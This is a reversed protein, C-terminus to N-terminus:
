ETWWIDEAECVKFWTVPNDWIEENSDYFLTLQVVLEQIM